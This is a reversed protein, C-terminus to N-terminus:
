AELSFETGLWTTEHLGWKITLVSSNLENAIHSFEIDEAWGWQYVDLKVFVTDRHDKGM